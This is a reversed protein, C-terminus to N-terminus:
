WGYSVQIGALWSNGKYHGDHTMPYEYLGNHNYRYINDHDIEGKDFKIYQIYWDLTWAGIKHGTGFTLMWRDTDPLVPSLTEAPVPSEDYVIGWRIETMDSFRYNFGLRYAMTDEWDFPLIEDEVVPVNVYAVPTGAWVYITGLTHKDFHVEAQDFQSWNTWQLDFETLLRGTDYSVGTQLLAPVSGLEFSTEEGPFAAANGPLLYRSREFSSHGEYDFEAKSKYTIGFSWPASKYLYGIDFGFAQDRVRTDLTGESPLITYPANGALDQVYSSFATTDVARILNIQSDYYDLGISLANRDDFKFAFVPHYNITQIKAHRSAFRGPFNDHWDTALAYPAGVSFGFFVKENLPMTFYVSPIFFNKARNEHSGLTPSEYKIDPRVYTMNFTLNSNKLFAIGAPNYYLATPDDATAVFANCMAAAKSGQEPIAIGSASVIFPITMVILFLVIKKM